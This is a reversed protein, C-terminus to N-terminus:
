RPASPAVVADLRRTVEARRRRVEELHGLAGAWETMAEGSTADVIADVRQLDARAAAVDGADLARVARIMLADALALRARPSVLCDTRAAEREIAEHLRLRAGEDLSTMLTRSLTSAVEARLWATIPGVPAVPRETAALAALMDEPRDEIRALAYDLAPEGPLRERLRRLVEAFGPENRSRRGWSMVMFWLNKLAPEECLRRDPDVRRVLALREVLAVLADAEEGGETARGLAFGDLLPSGEIPALLGRALPERLDAPLAADGLRAVALELAAADGAALAARVRAVSADEPGGRTTTLPAVSTTGLPREPVPAAGAVRWAVAVLAALALAVGVVLLTAPARREGAGKADLAAALARVDPYRAEPARAMARRVVADLWGPVGPRRQALPPPDRRTIADLVALPPGTFPPAGALMAYLTAGLAYVDAREDVRKADSVQEPAMFEPTGMLEGTATLTRAREDGALGFDVVRPEGQEDFLINGPKLDRHLVGQGHAHALAAAVKRAVDLAEDLALPGRSLREALSGGPLLDQALWPCPAHLDAAHVRVVHPHDLRALVEAERRFRLVDDAAPAALLTKLAHRAGTVEHVAEHVAGMGGRALERVLVYPGLRAPARM